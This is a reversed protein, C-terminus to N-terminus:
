ERPDTEILGCAYQWASKKAGIDASGVHVQKEVRDRKRLYVRFANKAKAFYIKGGNYPTPRVSMAPRSAAPRKKIIKDSSKDDRWGKNGKSKKVRAKKVGASTARSAKKGGGAVKMAKTRAKKPAAEGDDIEVTDYIGVRKFL